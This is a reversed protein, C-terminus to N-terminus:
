KKIVLAWFIFLVPIIAIMASLIMNHFPDIIQTWHM